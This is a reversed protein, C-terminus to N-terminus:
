SLPSAARLSFVIRHLAELVTAGGLVIHLKDGSCRAVGAAVRSRDTLRQEAGSLCTGVYHPVNGDSQAWNEAKEAHILAVSELPPMVM